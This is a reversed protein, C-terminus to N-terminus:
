CLVNIRPFVFHPFSADADLNENAKHFRSFVSAGRCSPNEIHIDIRIQFFEIEKNKHIFNDRSTVDHLIFKFSVFKAQSYKTFKDSRDSSEPLNIRSFIIKVLKNISFSKSFYPM